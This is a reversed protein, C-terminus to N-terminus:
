QRQLWKAAAVGARAGDGAAIIVQKGLQDTVDGAAFIGPCSTM